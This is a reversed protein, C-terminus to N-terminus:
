TDRDTKRRCGYKVEMGGEKTSGDDHDLTFRGLINETLNAVSAYTESITSSGHVPKTVRVSM